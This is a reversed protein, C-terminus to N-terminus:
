TAYGSIQVTGNQLMEVIMRYRGPTTPISGTLNGKALAFYDHEAGNTMYVNIRIEKGYLGTKEPNVARPIYIDVATRAGPGQAFVLDAADVLASVAVAAQAGRNEDEISTLGIYVIPILAVMVIVVISAYEVAAQAKLTM